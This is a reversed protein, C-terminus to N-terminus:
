LGINAPISLTNFKEHALEVHRKGNRISIPGHGPFFSTFELQNLKGITERYDQLNCGFANSIAIRGGTFVCDGTFLYKDSGEVLYCSHGLCHGPTSINRVTLSGVKITEGDKLPQTNKPAKFVYDSPYLGDAQAIRFGTAEVDGALLYKQSDINIYSDLGFKEEWEHLGGCHDIHFHTIFIKSIKSPDLGDEKLNSIIQEISGSTAMGCDILAIEDNGNIAYIHSDMAQSLGFGNIVGGGVLYVDKNLRM